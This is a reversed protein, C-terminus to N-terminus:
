FFAIYKWRMSLVSETTKPVVCVCVCPHCITVRLNYAVRKRRCQILRFNMKNWETAVFCYKIRNFRQSIEWTRKRKSFSDLSMTTPFTLSLRNLSPTKTHIHTHKHTYTTISLLCIEKNRVYITPRCTYKSSYFTYECRTPSYYNCMLDLYPWHEVSMDHLLVLIHWFCVCVCVCVSM